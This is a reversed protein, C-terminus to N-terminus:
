TAGSFSINNGTDDLFHVLRGDGQKPFHSDFKEQQYNIKLFM